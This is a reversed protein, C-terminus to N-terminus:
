WVVFYRLTALVCTLWISITHATVSVHAHFLVYISWKYSYFSAADSNDSYEHILYPITSINVILDSFAMASLITNVASIMNPRFADADVYDDYQNRTTLNHKTLSNTKWHKTTHKTQWIKNYQHKTLNPKSNLKPNTGITLDLKTHPHSINQM